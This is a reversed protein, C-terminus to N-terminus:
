AMRRPGDGHPPRAEEFMVPPARRVRNAGINGGGM